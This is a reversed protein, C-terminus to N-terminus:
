ARIVSHATARSAITAAGVASVWVILPVIWDRFRVMTGFNGNTLSIGAAAVASIGILLCTLLADRHLAALLGAAALVVLGYWILQQPLFALGARSYVQWPLPAVIFM